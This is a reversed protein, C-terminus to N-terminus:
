MSGGPNDRLQPTRLNSPVGSMYPGPHKEFGTGFSHLCSVCFTPILVRTICLFVSQFAYIYIMANSRRDDPTPSGHILVRIRPGDGRITVNLTHTRTTTHTGNHANTNDNM